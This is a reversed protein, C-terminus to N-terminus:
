AKGLTKAKWQGFASLIAGNLVDQVVDLGARMLPDSIGIYVIRGDHVIVALNPNEPDDLCIGVAEAATNAATIWIEEARMMADVVKGLPSNNM